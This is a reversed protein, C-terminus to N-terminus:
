FCPSYNVIKGDKWDGVLKMIKVYCVGRIERFVDVQRLFGSLVIMKEYWPGSHTWPKRM